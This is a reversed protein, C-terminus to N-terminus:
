NAFQVGIEGDKIILVNDYGEDEVDPYRRLFSQKNTPHPKMTKVFWQWPCKPVQRGIEEIQVNQPFLAENIALLSSEYNNMSECTFLLTGFSAFIKAANIRRREETLV